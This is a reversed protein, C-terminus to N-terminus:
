FLMSVKELASLYCSLGSVCFRWTAGWGWCHQTLWSGGLPPQFAVPILPLARTPPNPPNPPSPPTSVVPLLTEGM